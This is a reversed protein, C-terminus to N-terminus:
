ISVQFSNRINRGRDGELDTLKLCRNIKGRNYTKFIHERKIKEVQGLFPKMDSIMSVFTQETLAINKEWYEHVSTLVPGYPLSLALSNIRKSQPAPFSM